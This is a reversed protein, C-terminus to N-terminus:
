GLVRSAVIEGAARRGEILGGHVYGRHGEDNTYEGALWLRGGIPVKVARSTEDSATVGNFSYAGLSYPDSLWRTGLFATPEPVRDKGYLKRFVEVSEAVVKDTEREM